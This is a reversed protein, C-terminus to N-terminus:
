AALEPKRTSFDYRGGRHLEEGMSELSAPWDDGPRHHPPRM